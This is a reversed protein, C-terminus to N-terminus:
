PKPAKLKEILYDQLRRHKVDPAGPYVLECEVGLARLKEELKVGFNATHTPDPRPQGLAPTDRYLLYVPPDDASALEYPSYKRIWPLLRERAELFKQFPMQGRGPDAEIGFAHGGYRSNPTWELMQKPDLTTQANLVAVCWLRTSERAVPDPSKPDAMEDHFALWLSSCAGASSGTAAIRRKDIHWEAAKSRVFQLARAADELPWRVPPQVGAVQAQPVLRYNISVVSIGANLFNSLGLTYVRSKDGQRWGGGHIYLVVPTPEPADAKWFDLVQRPHPGYPVNAHTPEPGAPPSAEQAAPASAGARVPPASRGARKYRDLLSKLREVMDPREGYLNTRQAPDTRLNYLEGPFSHPKYGREQKFWDPEGARANDEGSPADIFVWDGRRIAFKGFMSRLITAQRIPGDRPADLLAPLINYSDEGADRPLETGLLAACTALLDVLCLTEDSVTGAPIRGPWRAIFPVRHGGEWADRKAGRWGDMSRHGYRRIREYAGVSIEVVEPGNDSTFIVLTNTAVGARELADLVAGVSADLQVVFDGYDGARSRGAFEPAPVVPFHPATLSFYLFFPRRNTAGAAQEIYRVARVTLEPLINTLNWGEVMPGPRNFVGGGARGLPAPVSPVGVTRDNEIFCYPPYNPLDVGFYYDFGRTTPGDGIPRSFDVNGIGNTSQPPAGDTTPWSWGLHWKGICATAYGNRCLLEPVTLRGAEILPPEWPRLVGSRLRSRFCYRGTLLGYRTPTCVADPAHADTFRIGERALRDLHPTPIKSDPNYCGVDGYGLDDALILVLNPQEAGRAAPACVVGFWAGFALAICVPSTIKLKM